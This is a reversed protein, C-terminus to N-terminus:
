PVGPNWVVSCYKWFVSTESDVYFFYILFDPVNELKIYIIELPM